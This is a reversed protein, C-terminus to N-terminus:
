QCLITYERRQQHCIAPYLRLTWSIVDQPLASDPQIGTETGCWTEEIRDAGIASWQHPYDCRVQM